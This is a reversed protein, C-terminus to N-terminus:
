RVYDEPLEFNLLIADVWLPPLYIEARRKDVNKIDIIPDMIERKGRGINVSSGYLSRPNDSGRGSSIAYDKLFAYESNSFEGAYVAALYVSDLYLFSNKRQKSINPSKEIFHHVSIPGLGGRTKVPSFFGRTEMMYVLTNFNISDALAIAEWQVKKKISDELFDFNNFGLGFMQAENGGQTFSRSFQDSGMMQSIATVWFIDLKLNYSSILSDLDLLTKNGKESAFYPKYVMDTKYYKVNGEGLGNTLWLRLIKDAIDLNGYLCAMKFGGDGDYRVNGLFTAPYKDICQSYFALMGATDNTTAFAILAKNKETYFQEVDVQGNSNFSYSFLSITILLVKIPNM